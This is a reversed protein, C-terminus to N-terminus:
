VAEACYQAIMEDITKPRYGFRDIAFASSITFSPRAVDSVDITSRSQTLQVLREVLKGVTTFGAAGVPFAPFGAEKRTLVKLFLESLDDVYAANNFLNAPGYITVDRNAKLSQLLTPVWARHAGQGLVGPLRVAAGSLDGSTAFMREALYKSAGYVDADRIPTTEDVTSDTIRGYASLTSAYALRGAGAARAYSIINQAGAVNCRLM